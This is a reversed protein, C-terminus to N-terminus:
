DEDPYDPIGIQGRIVGVVFEMGLDEWSGQDFKDELKDLLKDIAKKQDEDMGDIAAKIISLINFIATLKM